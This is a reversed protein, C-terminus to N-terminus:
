TDLFVRPRHLVSPKPYKWCYYGEGNDFDVLWLLKPALDMAAIDRAWDKVVRDLEELVRARLPDSNPARDLRESLQRAEEVAEATRARVKPLLRQADELTFRRRRTEASM